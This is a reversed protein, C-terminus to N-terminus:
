IKKDILAFSFGEVKDKLILYSECDLLNRPSGLFGDINVLTSKLLDESTFSDLISVQKRQCSACFVLLAILTAQILSSIKHRM